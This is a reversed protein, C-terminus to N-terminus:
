RIKADLPVVARMQQRMEETIEQADKDSRIVRPTILALLETRTRGETTSSFLSGVYPIEQLGPVGSRGDSSSDRILGGLAITTGDRVAISSAIKRQQITPSDLGSSTTRTVDSVEQAVDMIVMGSANVRPTVRLIVGTDKMEISTVVPAGPTQVSVASQTAVPVQDGIQLVATQNNLVMLQPSSIVNVTTVSQLLDLVASIKSVTVFASFGPLTSAISPTDAQTLIGTAEKNKFLYQVGYRLDDTLTVEAIVAEIRVQLPVIDLKKLAAEILSFEAKTGMIILTNTAEDAIIRLGTESPTISLTEEVTADLPAANEPTASATQLPPLSPPLVQGNTGRATKKTEATGGVLKSLTSALSSARGNQVPYVWIKRELPGLDHDLRAIWTRIQKLYRPQSSIALVANLRDLPVLRVVKGLPGNQTGMVDWLENVMNKVSAEKLPFLGFSMGAMWDVDFTHVMDLISTRDEMTGAIMLLNRASEVPVISGAPAAPEILKRMEDAGIYRLMVIEVGYGQAANGKLTAIEGQRPAEALPVVKAMDGKQVIAMGNMRFATNLASLMNQRPLPQRTHITVNGQLGPAITYNLGLMDGLVAKAVDNIDANVFNLALADGEVPVDAAAMGESGPLSFGAGEFIGGKLGSKKADSDKSDILSFTPTADAPLAVSAAKETAPAPANGTRAPQSTCATLFVALLGMALVLNKM